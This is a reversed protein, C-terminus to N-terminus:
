ENAILRYLESGLAYKHCLDSDLAHEHIEEDTVELTVSSAAISEADELFVDASSNRLPFLRDGPQFFASITGIGGAVPVVSLATTACSITHLLQTLDHHDQSPLAAGGGGERGRVCAKVSGNLHVDPSFAQASLRQRGGLVIALPGAFFRINATLLKM